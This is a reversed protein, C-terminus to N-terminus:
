HRHQERAERLRRALGRLLALALAPQALLLAELDWSALALCVVPTDTTVHAIRPMRDLVSLEGFFDGPGLTALVEDNRIVRAQGSILLFFGTGVEGQRVIHRGAAYEVEIARDAIDAVAGPEIGAFLEVGGLLRSREERTLAM